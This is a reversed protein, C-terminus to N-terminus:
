LLFLLDKALLRNSFALHHLLCFRASLILLFILIYKLLFDTPTIQSRCIKIYLSFLWPFIYIPMYLSNDSYNSFLMPFLFFISFFLLSFGNFFWPKKFLHLIKSFFNSFLTSMKQLFLIISDQEGSFVVFLVVSFSLKFFPKSFFIQFFYFFNNVFSFLQSLINFTSPSLRFRFFVNFRSFQVTSFLGFGLTLEFSSLAFLLKLFCFTLSFQCSLNNFPSLSYAYNTVM